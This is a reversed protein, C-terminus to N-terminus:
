AAAAGRSGSLEFLQDIQDVLGDPSTRSKVWIAAGLSRARERISPDVDAATYIIAPLTEGGPLARIGEIVKLGSMDPLGLDVVLVDPAAIRYASLASAGAQAVGASYGRSELTASVVDALALDDEVLLVRRPSQAAHATLPETTSQQEQMPLPLTFCFVSGEGVTSEVWIRGGHQRVIGRCIALGLGTGGKERADSADVQQFREFISELKDAPIGRGSDRIEFRVDEDDSAIHVEVVSGVPSFKIANGVLNTLTQTLRDADAWARSADGTVRLEVGVREAVPRLTETVQRALGMVDAWALDMAIAGSEIRETDLIDNILRILRDSNSVAVDLMRAAKEPSGSLRGSSILGLAGRIATLPTRLEHSVVSVFEGKLRDLEKRSSIDRAIVQARGGPLIAVSLEVPVQTNDARVAIDETTVADGVRMTSLLSGSKADRAVFLSRVDLGILESEVRGLLACARANAEVCFGGPAAILIADAAQEVLQRYRAESDRIATESQKRATIDRSTVAVGDQLPVIQHHIWGSFVGDERVEVEEVIPEQSEAVRTFKALHGNTATFPLVQTMRHNILEARTRSLLATARENVDTFVFDVIRGTEDRVTDFIIFADFGGNSAARFRQDSHALSQEIRKQVILTSIQAAAVTLMRINRDDDAQPEKTFFALVAVVEDRAMAPVAVASKFGARAAIRSRPVRADSAVDGVWFADRTAWAGGPVGDGKALVLSESGAAFGAADVGDCSYWSPSRELVTGDASPFWVEGYSWGTADCLRHLTETLAVDLDPATSVALVVRNVIAIEAELARRVSIDRSTCVFMVVTHGDQERVSRTMTELWGYSGDARRCRWVTTVLENFQLSRRHDAMLMRVDDPHSFEGPVRGKLAEAPLGCYESWSPTSYGFAGDPTHTSVMDTANEALLRYLDTAIEAEAERAAIRTELVRQGDLLALESLKQAHVDSWTGLWKEISGNSNYLATVRARHWRYESDRARLIRCETEFAAEAAIAATWRDTILTREDPHIVAEWEMALTQEPSLGTYAFWGHNCYDIEGGPTATWVMEPLAEAIQRYREGAVVLERQGRRARRDVLAILIATILVFASVTTVLLALNHHGLLPENPAASATPDLRFHAASMATYHMGSIAIGMGIASVIRLIAGRLGPDDNAYFAIWLTAGAASVAIAISIAVRLADHHISFQGRMAAMGLYHMGAIAIGAAIAGAALRPLRLSGGNAIGLAATSAIIALAASAITRVPEFAIPLGMGMALMGIFHMAAIGLGMALGGGCLWVLKASGRSAGVRGSITLAAYSALMAIAVSAAVLQADFHQQLMEPQPM